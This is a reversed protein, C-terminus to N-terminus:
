PREKEGDVLVQECALTRPSCDPFGGEPRARWAFNCREPQAGAVGPIWGEGALWGSLCEAEISDAAFFYAGVHHLSGEGARIMPKTLLQSPTSAAFNRASIFNSCLEYDTLPAGRLLDGLSRTKSTSYTFLPRGPDGHCAPFSCDRDLLPQVGCEFYALDLAPLPEGTENEVCGGLWCCSALALGLLDSSIRSSRKV